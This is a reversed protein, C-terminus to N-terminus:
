YLNFHDEVSGKLNIKPLLIKAQSYLLIEEAYTM